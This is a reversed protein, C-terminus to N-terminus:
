ECDGGFTTLLTLLDASGITGDNNLDGLCSAVCPETECTGDDVSAYPEFNEASPDTCGAFACSGDDDNAVPNFNLAHPYTCGFVANGNADITIVLSAEVMGASVPNGFVSLFLEGTLTVEYTGAATPVGSYTLCTQSGGSITGALNDFALGAPMGLVELGSWDAVAYTTGTGEEEISAPLHLVVEQTVSQGATHLLATPAYLGLDFGEWEPAGIAACSLEFYTCSGDDVDATPDFNFASPDTCGFCSYDCSGDDAIASPVYNCATNDTCGLNCGPLSAPITVSIDDVFYLPLTVGDGAAFFNVGGIQEGDYPLEGVWSGDIFVNMLDAETDIVHSIEVWAGYNYTTTIEPGGSGDAAPDVAFTITSDSGLYCEFAWETGAVINEQVNYYGSYGPPVLLNVTVDYIGELGAILVVDMPGGTLQGEIKLSNTGSLQAENTVFADTVGEAPWLDFAPSVESIAAGSAYGDFNEFYLLEETSFNDESCSCCSGDDVNAEPVYNCALPNTCGSVAAEGETSELNPDLNLRVM